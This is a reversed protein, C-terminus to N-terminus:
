PHIRLLVELHVLCVGIDVIGVERRVLFDISIQLLAEFVLSVTVIDDRVPPCPCGVGMWVGVGMGCVFM